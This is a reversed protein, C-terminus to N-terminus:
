LGTTWNYSSLHVKEASPRKIKQKMAFPWKVNCLLVLSKQHYFWSAFQDRTRVSAMLFIGNQRQRVLCCFSGPHANPQFKSLSLFVFQESLCKPNPVYKARSHMELARLLLGCSCRQFVIRCPPVPTLLHWHCQLLSVSCGTFHCSPHVSM